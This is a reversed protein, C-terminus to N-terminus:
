AQGRSRVHTGISGPRQRTRSCSRATRPWKAPAPLDIRGRFEPGSAAFRPSFPALSLLQWFTDYHALGNIVLTAIITSGWHKGSIHFNLYIAPDLHPLEPKSNAM